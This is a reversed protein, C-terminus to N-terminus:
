MPFKQFNCSIEYPFKKYLIKYKEYNWFNVKTFVRNKATFNFDNRVVYNFMSDTVCDNCVYKASSLGAFFISTNHM